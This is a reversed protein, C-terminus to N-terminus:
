ELSDNMFSVPTCWYISNFAGKGETLFLTRDNDRFIEMVMYTRSGQPAGEPVQGFLLVYAKGVKAGFPKDHADAEVVITMDYGPSAHLTQGEWVVLGNDSLQSRTTPPHDTSQSQHWDAYFVVESSSHSNALYFIADRFGILSM